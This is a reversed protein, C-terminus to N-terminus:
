VNLHMGLMDRDIISMEDPSNMIKRLGDEGGIVGAVAAVTGLKGKNDANLLAARIVNDKKPELSYM